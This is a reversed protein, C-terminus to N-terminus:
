ASVAIACAPVKAATSSAQVQCRSNRTSRACGPCSSQLYRSPRKVGSKMTAGSSSQGMVSGVRWLRAQATLHDGSLFFEVPAAVAEVAQQGSAAHPMPNQARRRRGFHREALAGELDHQGATHGSAGVSWSTQAGRCRRRDGVGEGSARPSGRRRAAGCRASRSSRLMPRISAGSNCAGSSSASGPLDPVPPGARSAAPGAPPRGSTPLQRCAAADSWCWLSASAIRASASKM